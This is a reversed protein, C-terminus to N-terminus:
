SRGAPVAILGRHGPRTGVGCSEAALERLFTPYPTSTLNLYRTVEPDWRIAAM